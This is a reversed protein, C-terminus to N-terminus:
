NLTLLYVNTQRNQAVGYGSLICPMGARESHGQALVRLRSSGRPRYRPALAEMAHLISARKQEPDRAFSTLLLTATKM